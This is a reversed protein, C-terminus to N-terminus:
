KYQNFKKETSKKFVLSDKIKKLIKIAKERAWYEDITKGGQVSDLNDIEEELFDSVAEAQPMERFDKLLEERIKKDM